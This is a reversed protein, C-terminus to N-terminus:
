IIIYFINSSSISIVNGHCRLIHICELFNMTMKIIQFKWFLPSSFWSKQGLIRRKHQIISFLFNKMTYYINQTSKVTITKKPMTVIGHSRLSTYADVKHDMKPLPLM